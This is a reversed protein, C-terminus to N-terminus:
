VRCNSGHRESSPPSDTALRSLPLSIGAAAPSIGRSPRSCAGRRASSSSTRGQRQRSVSTPLCPSHLCTSALRLRRRGRTVSRSRRRRTSRLGRTETLSFTRHRLLVSLSCDRPSCDSGEAVESASSWWHRGHTARTCSQAERRERERERERQHWSLKCCGRMAAEQWNNACGVSREARWGALTLVLHRQVSQSLPTERTEETLSFSHAREATSLSSAM